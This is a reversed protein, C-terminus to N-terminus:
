WFRGSELLMLSHLRCGKTGLGCVMVMMMQIRYTRVSVGVVVVIGGSM